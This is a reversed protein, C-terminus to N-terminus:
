KIRNMSLKWKLDTTITISLMCLYFVKPYRDSHRCLTLQVVVRQMKDFLKIYSYYKRQLM